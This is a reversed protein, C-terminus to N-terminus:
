IIEKRIRYRAEDISINHERAAREIFEPDIIVKTTGFGSARSIKIEGLRTDKIEDVIEMKYASVDSRRVYTASTNKIIAAAAEDAVDSNCICRLVVGSGGLLDAVAETYAELVGLERLKEGTLGLADVGDNFLTASLEAVTSNASTKIERGVSVRTCNAGTKYSRAGIGIGTKIVAIDPSDLFENVYESLIAAGDLTCLEGEERGDTYPMDGLLEKVTPTPIKTSGATSSIYGTGVTVPTAIIKEPKLDELIMCVGVVAAIVDRSGARHLTVEDLSRGHTKSAAEAIKTYIDISRKRAKGSLKLDEIIERVDSLSRKKSSDHHHGSSSSRRKKKGFSFFGGGEDDDDDDDDDDDLEDDYLEDESIRNFEIRTGSVGGTSDSRREMRLGDFGAGNFQRIFEHPQEMMDVLAGLLKMASVGMRGDIFLISM